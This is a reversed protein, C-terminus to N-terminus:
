LNIMSPFTTTLKFLLYCKNEHLFIGCHFYSNERKQTIWPSSHMDYVKHIIYWTKM